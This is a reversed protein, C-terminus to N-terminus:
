LIEDRLDLGPVVVVEPAMGHRAAATHADDKEIIVGLLDPDVPPVRPVQSATKV